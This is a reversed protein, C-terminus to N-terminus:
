QTCEKTFFELHPQAAAQLAEETQFLDANVTLTHLAASAARCDNNHAIDVATLVAIALIAIAATTIVAGQFIGTILAKTAKLM